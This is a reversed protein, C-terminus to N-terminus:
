CISRLSREFVISMGVGALSYGGDACASTCLAVTAESTGGPTDVRNKLTRDNSDTWCGGSKWGAPGPNISPGAPAARNAYYVTLRDPGLVTDASDLKCQKPTASRVEASRPPTELVLWQASPITECRRQTPLIIGVTRRDTVYRSLM